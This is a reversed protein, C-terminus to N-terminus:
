LSNLAFAKIMASNIANENSDAYVVQIRNADLRLNGSTVLLIKNQKYM